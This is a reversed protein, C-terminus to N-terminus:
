LRTILQMLDDLVEIVKANAAYTQEVKLLRQLEDDTNVGEALQMQALETARAAAFSLKQDTSNREVAIGSITASILGAASQSQGAYSGSSAIQTDTLASSLANLLGAEGVPGIVTANLGARLRWLAGGEEPDVVGNIEIRDSLGLQNLPDLALGQDTFLGPDGSALSPDVSPDSFREILDRALADIDSQAAVGMEDRIAFQADIEGGRLAGQLSDTRVSQGNVTLGSLTGASVNMYPTVQHVASFGITAATGDILGAGATTYLAIRGGDRAIERVPVLTSIRDVVGQRQDL